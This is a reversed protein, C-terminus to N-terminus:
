KTETVKSSALLVYNSDGNYYLLPLLAKPINEHVMCANGRTGIKKCYYDMMEATLPSKSFVYNKFSRNDLADSSDFTPYCERIIGIHLGAPNSKYKQCAYWKSKWFLDGRIGCIESQAEIDNLGDFWCDEIFIRGKKPLCQIDYDSIHKKMVVTWTWKLEDIAKTDHAIAPAENILMNIVGDIGDKRLSDRFRINYMVIDSIYLHLGDNKRQIYDVAKQLSVFECKGYHPLYIKKKEMGFLSVLIPFTIM